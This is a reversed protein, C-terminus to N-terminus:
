VSPTQTTWIMVLGGVLVMALLVPYFFPQEPKKKPMLSWAVLVIFIAPLAGLTLAIWTVGKADGMGWAGSRVLAYCCLAIVPVYVIDWTLNRIVLGLIAIPIGLIWLLNPVRRQKIDYICAILIFVLVTAYLVLYHTQNIGAFYGFDYMQMM